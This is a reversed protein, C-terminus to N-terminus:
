SDEELKFELSIEPDYIIQIKGFSKKMQLSDITIKLIKENIEVGFNGQNIIEKLEKMHEEDFDYANFETKFDERFDNEGYKNIVSEGVQRIYFEALDQKEYLEEIFQVDYIKARAGMPDAIFVFLATLAVIVVLFVLLVVSPDARKNM